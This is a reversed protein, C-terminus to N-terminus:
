GPERVSSSTVGKRRGAHRSAPVREALLAQLLNRAKAETHSLNGLQNLDAAIPVIETISRVIFDNAPPAAM